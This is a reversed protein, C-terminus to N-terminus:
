YRGSVYIYKPFYDLLKEIAFCILTTQPELKTNNSFPLLGAQTYFKKYLLFLCSAM